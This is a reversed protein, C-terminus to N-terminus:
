SHFSLHFSLRVLRNIEEVKIMDNLILHTLVMLTNKRVKPNPDRLRSYMHHTWPEVLNPFRFALDGLAIVINARLLSYDNDKDDKLLITFLLQLNQESHELFVEESINFQHFVCIFTLVSIM